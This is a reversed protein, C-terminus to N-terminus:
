CCRAANGYLAWVTLTCNKLAKTAMLVLYLLSFWLLEADLIPLAQTTMRSAMVLRQGKVQNKMPIINSLPNFADEMSPLTLDIEKKPVYVMKGNRMAAVRKSNSELSNPFGITMDAVDIPTKYVLKGTRADMFQSYLKGDRGKRAGRAMYTDVGVKGSEPTRVPDVYGFMSPQVSRAEKPIADTSPIGGEGLRSVATTKDYLEAPYKKM